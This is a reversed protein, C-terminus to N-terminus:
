ANPSTGAVMVETIDEFTDRWGSAIESTWGAGATEAMATLMCEAFTAYMSETVGWRAHREGLAGLTTVLWDPDDLHRLVADIVAHLKKAQPRIEDAFMPRLSPHREFLVEYFRRSVADGALVPGDPDVPLRAEGLYRFASRSRDLVYSHWVAQVPDDGLAFTVVVAGPVDGEDVDLGLTAGDFPGATLRANWGPDDAMEWAYGRCGLHV